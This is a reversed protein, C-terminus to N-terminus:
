TSAHWKKTFPRRREVLDPLVGIGTSAFACTNPPESSPYTVTNGLNQNYITSTPLSHCPAVSVQPLSLLQIASRPWVMQKAYWVMSPEIHVPCLSLFILLSTWHRSHNSEFTCVSPHVWAILCHFYALYIICFM